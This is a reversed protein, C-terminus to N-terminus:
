TLLSTKARESRPTSEASAHVPTAPEMAFTNEYRKGSTLVPISYVITIKAYNNDVDEEDLDVKVEHIDVVSLYKKVQSIIRNKLEGWRSSTSQDFLFERFGVGMDPNMPWEGPSCYILLILNQKISDVAMTWPKWPPGHDILPFIPQYM